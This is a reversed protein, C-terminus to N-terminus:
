WCRLEARAADGPDRCQRRVLAEIRTLAALLVETDATRSRRAHEALFARGRASAALLDYFAEYYDAAPANAPQPRALALPENAM